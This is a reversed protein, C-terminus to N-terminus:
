RSPFERLVAEADNSVLTKVWEARAESEFRQGERRWLGDGGWKIMWRQPTAAWYLFLVYEGGPELHPMGEERGREIYSGRDVDIGFQTVRIYGPKVYQDPRITGNLVRLVRVQSTTMRAFVGRAMETNDQGRQEARGLLVLETNALTEALTRPPAWADSVSVVERVPKEPKQQRAESGVMGLIALVLVAAQSWKHTRM